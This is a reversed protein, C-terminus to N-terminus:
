VPILADHLVRVADDCQDPSVVASLRSDAAFWGGPEISAGDLAAHAQTWIEDRSVLGAGILTALGVPEATLGRSGAERAIPGHDLGAMGIRDVLIDLQEGHATAMVRGGVATIAEVLEPLPPAEGTMRSVAKAGVVAVVGTPAPSDDSVRTERGSDDGTKRAYLTIGARRAFEVACANLIKAGAGAMTQMTEYQLEPLLKAQACVRPDASYVGDVDSYIECAVADLAAALAVATTDSGGRGLTTVERQRSVGQYGAVIVIRGRELEEVIRLPKVELIRAGQHSHETIIGSQSGTFSIADEGEQQIAMSLLAMAIREGATVLMDLERQPPEDAVERALEILQDTSNGMASVVVVLRDGSRKRAVVQSAVNRMQEADAVSSGGFKQM